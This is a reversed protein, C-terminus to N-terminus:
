AKTYLTDGPVIGAARLASALGLDRNLSITKNFYDYENEFIDLACTGHKEWEHAWFSKDPHSYSVWNRYLDPIDEMEELKFPYNLNCCSPAVKSSNGPWLGHVTFLNTGRM